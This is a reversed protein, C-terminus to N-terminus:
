DQREPRKLEIAPAELAIPRPAHSSLLRFAVTSAPVDEIRAEPSAAAPAHAAQGVPGAFSPLSAALLSDLQAAIAVVDGVPEPSLSADSTANGAESAM